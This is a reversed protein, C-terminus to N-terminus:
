DSRLVDDPSALPALVATAPSVASKKRTASSDGPIHRGARDTLARDIALAIRILM